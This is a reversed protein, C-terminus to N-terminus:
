KITAAFDIKPAFDTKAFHVGLLSAITAAIQKQYLQSPVKLEGKVDVGAGIAALWTQGSGPTMFNHAHWQHTKKGRGHDTTILLATKDKYMPNSQIYYWLNAIMRDADSAHQLYQDYRADHASEDTEGFAIMVIKPQHTKVYEFASLFTIADHRTAKKEVIVQDQLEHLLAQTDNIATDPLTSYGSYVPLGNRSQGLIYPFISWSSFAVVKGKYADQENLMELINRNLNLVPQNSYILFDNKGTLIENYGPYSYKYFNSVNVNNGYARNGMLQGHKAIVNWFFPMLKKRRETQCTDWYQLKTLGTDLTYKNDSILYEDAGGFVEQWRFGDMTVIFVNEAIQQQQSM